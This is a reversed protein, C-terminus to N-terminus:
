EKEITSQPVDPNKIICDLFRFDSREFKTNIKSLFNCYILACENVYSSDKLQPLLQFLIKPYFVHYHKEVFAKIHIIDIKSKVLLDCAAILDHNFAWDIEQHITQWKSIL